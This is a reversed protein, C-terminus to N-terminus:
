QENAQHSSLSQVFNLGKSKMSWTSLPPQQKHWDTHSAKALELKGQERKKNFVHLVGQVTHNRCQRGSPEGWGPGFCLVSFMLARFPPFFTYANSIQKAKSVRVTKKKVEDKEEVEKKRVEREEKM